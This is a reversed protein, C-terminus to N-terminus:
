IFLNRKFKVFSAKAKVFKRPHIFRESYDINDKFFDIDIVGCYKKVSLPQVLQLDAIINHSLVPRTKTYFDLKKFNKGGFLIKDPM